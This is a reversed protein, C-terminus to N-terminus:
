GRCREIQNKAKGLIMSIIIIGLTYVITVLYKLINALYFFCVSFTIIILTQRIRNSFVNKEKENVPRNINEVPKMYYLIIIEFVSIVLSFEKSIPFYKIMSLTFFVVLCSCLFCVKFSNMHLGGVLSRLSFFLLFFATCEWFMPMKIALIYCIVMCTLLEIGILFGYKYIEYDTESITNKKVIYDTLLKSLKEM